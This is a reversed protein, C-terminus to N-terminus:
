GATALKLHDPYRNQIIELIIRNQPKEMKPDAQVLEQAERRASELIDVQTLPNAFKLENLGHQHRGFYQGPGRIMLDAQAIKFGDTTTAIATLRAQADETIPDSILICLSAQSGRGIRGRLQHLQSLGFREAHEVVMITANPVDVGVELITTAVLIQIEGAKFSQMMASSEERKMRGHVLGIKLGKFENKEFHKFSTQAAKLDLKESEEVLPYIIYAQRGKEVEKRVFAYVKESQEPKAIKTTIAGRGPPMESITSVDLDGFLTLSLTRPIPTATMVLIDPNVGKASLFARQRVGFKHQEDIVVYSLNRFVLENGILAHTGFLLDIEGKQVSERLRAKESEPLSGVLLGARIAGFDTGTLIRQINEFHQRALIETPAMFAAQKKNEIAALCGMLAVLTKGCGVDGQLLRLMPSSKAMDGAIEAMAKEQGATLSFPFVKRFKRLFNEDVRHSIGDRFAVNLRRRIVSIQFFLFEEFSVRRMAEQRRADNEPFHINYLSQQISLLRHKERVTEPLLDRVSAAYKELGANIIRRLYRQSIGKTLPYVPVIRGMSLNKDAKNIIEYEPAIMQIRDKYVAARGFLVVETGPKFYSDLYPQNFWVATLRGSMDEIVTEYVHKRTYWSQRGGRAIVKGTVTVPEGIKIDKLPTMKTRDEYRRPFLYLLDEINDVGLNALIQKRAPGVGKLYQVSTESPISM